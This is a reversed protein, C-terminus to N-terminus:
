ATPATFLRYFTTIKLSGATPLGTLTVRVADASSQRPGAVGSQDIHALGVVTKGADLARQAETFRQPLISDGLSWDTEGVITTLVLAVVSSIISDAPLMATSSDTTVSSTSLVVTESVSGWIEQSGDSATSITEGITNITGVEPFEPSLSVKGALAGTLGTVDGEVHTHAAQAPSVLLAGTPGFGNVVASTSDLIELLNASQLAAGEIRLPVVAAGPNHLVVGRATRLSVTGTDIWVVCGSSTAGGAGAGAAAGPVPGASGSGILSSVVLSAVAELTQLESTVVSVLLDYAAGNSGGSVLLDVSTAGVGDVTVTVGTTVTVAASDLVEGAGLGTAFQVRVRKTESPHKELRQTTFM